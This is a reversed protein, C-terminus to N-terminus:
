RHQFIGHGADMSGGGKFYLTKDVREIMRALTLETGLSRALDLEKGSALPKQIDLAVVKEAGLRM